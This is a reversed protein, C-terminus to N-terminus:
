RRRVLVSDLVENIKRLNENFKDRLEYKINYPIPVGIKSEAKSILIDITTEDLKRLVVKFM